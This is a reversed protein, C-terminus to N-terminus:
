FRFFIGFSFSALNAIFSLLFVQQYSLSLLSKYILAEILTVLLEGVVIYIGGDHTYAPLVFWLYPLTLTSALVAPILFKRPRIGNLPLLHAVLLVVPVEIALTSALALLFQNEYSLM